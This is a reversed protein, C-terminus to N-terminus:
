GPPPPYNQLNIAPRNRFPNYLPDGVLIMQWSLFPNSMNFVEALSYRGSMLLQFFVSPPPFAKLYPETVSGLTAIVGKEIMSKVWYRKNKNHISVAESSAVHYGVAGKTWEFADIYEGLSYWGCYLAASPAEGPGFLRPHNDFVVPFKSKKIIEATKKLEEDFRGYSGKGKLGRADIYFKGSLGTTEVEVATRVLGMALDLTPADIRSVMLTKGAFKKMHREAGIFEPNIQWGALDYDRVLVLALESDVAAVTDRGSLHNIRLKINTIESRLKHINGSLAQKRGADESSEKELASLEKGKRKKMEIQKELEVGLIGTPKRKSVRLPIGYTTVLCKIRGGRDAIKQLHKRVPGAVDKDYEERSVRESTRVSVNIINSPPIHRLNIYMEGIQMSESSKKNVLVAIEEPLLAAELLAAQSGFCAYINILVILILYRFANEQNMDTNYIPTGIYSLFLARIDGSETLIYDASINIADQIHFLM